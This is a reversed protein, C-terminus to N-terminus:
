MKETFEMLYQVKQMFLENVLRLEEKKKKSVFRKLYIEKELEKKRMELPKIVSECYLKIMRDM